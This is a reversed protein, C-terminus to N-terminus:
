AIKYLKVASKGSWQSLQNQQYWAQFMLVDWLHHHWNRRGSLHENWKLRIAEPHFFGENKLRKESLLDEAWDRLPGRLWIDIPVSFGMKPREFLSRPVYRDLLRRLIWKGQGNKIKLDHPLDWAFEVVRHDLFPARTELSVSMSARDVKTMIDDPLYTLADTRMMHRSFDEGRGNSLATYPLLQAAQSELVVNESKQWHTRLISYMESASNVGFVAIFKQLKEAPIRHCFVGPLVPDLRQLAYAWQSTRLLALAAALTRRLPAPIWHIAKWIRQGWVYRNYGGFLEDGGDGSLAVTVSQRALKSILYTPIQSSDAFPEDYISPLLPIVGMAEKPSLYLETHDTGLHKAVAKAQVAENYQNEHFGITFTRIPRSAQAQMLAVTTSSDIGGSLLAGLPVDAVMQQKIADMLIKELQEIYEQEDVSDGPGEDRTFSPFDWYPVPRPWTEDSQWRVSLLVAPPLKRIGKFISFPVPVCGFQLLLAVADRNIEGEWDPHVKLAKLESAFVFTKGIWGYYLPKEGMRDRALHLTRDKCDWLAFAFMGVFKQTATVVGWEEFAALMVETDSTGRFSHGKTELEKRLSRFNYIEGNLSIVYRGSRSIMPQKGLPSLDLVSLRAHGLSLGASDDTWVGSNDPGRHSLSKVMRWTIEELTQTQHNLIGAIGCM